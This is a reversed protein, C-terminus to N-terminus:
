CSASTLMYGGATQVARPGDLPTTSGTSRDISAKLRSVQKKELASKKVSVGHTSSDGDESEDDEGDIVFSLSNSSSVSSPNSSSSSTSEQATPKKSMISSGFMNLKQLLAASTTGVSSASAALPAAPKQQQQTKSALTAIFSGVISGTEKAGEIIMSPYTFAM